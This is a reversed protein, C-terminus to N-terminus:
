AFIIKKYQIIAPDDAQIPADSDSDLGKLLVLLQKERTEDDLFHAFDASIEILDRLDDHTSVLSLAKKSVLSYVKIDGHKTLFELIELFFDLPENTSKKLLASLESELDFEEEEAKLRIELFEFWRKEQVFPSFGEVFDHAWSLNGQEIEESFYDYLFQEINNASQSSLNEICTKPDIGSDANENLIQLLRGIIDQFAEVDDVHGTDYLNIQHDLEDCFLSLSQKEPLLRRWLEFVVLFGRDAEEAEDEIFLEDSLEEPSDYNDALAMFHVPDFEYGLVSLRQFLEETTLPRLDEVQWPAVQLSPDRLWNMRLSNYLARRETEM